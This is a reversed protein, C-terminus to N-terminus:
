GERHEFVIRYIREVDVHQRFLSALRDYQENRFGSYDGRSTVLPELGKAGRLSDLMRRVFEGSEFIGHLYTGAVRGDDSIWGDLAADGRGGGNASGAALDAPERRGDGGLEETIRCFHRGGALAEGCDRGGSETPYETTGMHIEYGGVDVGACGALFASDNPLVRARVRATRKETGIETVLPLLGLGQTARTHGEMGHPDGVGRGLMQFGGCIGFVVGGEEYYRRIRAEMGTQRLYLLDGITNKSGPIILLDPRGFAAPSDIYELSVDPERQLPTFDTFNSMHPVLVVGVRLERGPEKRAFAETVSDEDDIRLDTYPIVGLVPVGTLNELKELGPRLIEFDGRFKNIIVGKIRARDTEDLLMMTGVISAFVGGKDIDGVLLVPARAIRAMGMNVFDLHNLNIEAPSGAGEIVVIGAAARVEVYTEEVMRYLHPKLDYYERATFNGFVRGKVIVQSSADAHPKILIPNMNVHPELGCAEAQAVQARGMEGGERTVYSNLAMNQSKFPYVRHGDQKFVRCLATCIM